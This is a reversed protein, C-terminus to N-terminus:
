EKKTYRDYIEKAARFNDMLLLHKIRQQMDQPLQSFSTSEKSKVQFNINTNM